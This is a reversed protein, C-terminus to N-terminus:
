LCDTVFQKIREKFFTRLFDDVLFMRSLESSSGFFCITLNLDYQLKFWHLKCVLFMTWNQAQKM